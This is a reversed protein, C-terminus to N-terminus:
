EFAKLYFFTFQYLMAKNQSLKKYKDHEPTYGM